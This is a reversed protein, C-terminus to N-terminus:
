GLDEFAVGSVCLVYFTVIGGWSGCPLRGPRPITRTRSSPGGYAQATAGADTPAM